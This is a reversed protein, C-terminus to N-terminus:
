NIFIYRVAVANNLIIICEGQVSLYLQTGLLLAVQHSYNSPSDRYYRYDHYSRYHNVIAIITM